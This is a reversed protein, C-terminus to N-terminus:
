PKLGYCYYTATYPVRVKQGTKAQDAAASPEGGGVTELRRISTVRNFVGQGEHRKVTLLLWPAAGEDKSAAEAIIECIVKSGDNSEWTPGAYHSGVKNGEFDFLDAEPVHIWEYQKPDGQKPAPEYIQFGKGRVAFLLTEKSSVKLADPVIPTALPAYTTRTSM